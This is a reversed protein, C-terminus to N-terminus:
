PSTNPIAPLHLERDYRQRLGLVQNGLWEPTNATEWEAWLERHCTARFTFNSEVRVLECFKAIEKRHEVFEEFESANRPEWYAYLLTLRKGPWCKSLGLYRKVLQAVDLRRFEEGNERLRQLLKFFVSNARADSITVYSPSFFARKVQLYELCKSEVAVVADRSVALVDLHPATGGLGTSCPREFRMSEFGTQDLICLSTPDRHWRGFMNVTLASSSHPARM